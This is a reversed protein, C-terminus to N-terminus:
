NGDVVYYQCIWGVSYDSVIRGESPYYSSIPDEVPRLEGIKGGDGARMAATVETIYSDYRSADVPFVATNYIVVSTLLLVTVLDAKFSPLWKENMGNKRLKNFLLIILLMLVCMGAYMFDLCILHLVTLTLFAAIVSKLRYAPNMKFLLFGTLSCVPVLLPMMVSFLARQIVVGSCGLAAAGAFCAITISMPLIIDAIKSKRFILYFLMVLIPILPLAGWELFCKLYSLATRVMDPISVSQHGDVVLQRNANGPAKLVLGMGPLVCFLAIYYYGIPKIRHTLMRLILIIALMGGFIENLSSALLVSLFTLIENKKDVKPSDINVIAWLMATGAWLYNVSGSIWLISDGWAPLFMFMTLYCYTLTFRSLERYAPTIHVYLLWGATVFVAANLVAYVIKPLNVLAFVIFHCIM